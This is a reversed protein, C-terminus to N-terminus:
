LVAHCGYLSLSSRHVRPPMMRILKSLHVPSWVYIDVVGLTLDSLGHTVNWRFCKSKNNQNSDTINSTTELMIHQRGAHRPPVVPPPLM